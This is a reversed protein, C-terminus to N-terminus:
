QKEIEPLEFTNIIALNSVPIFAMDRQEFFDYLDDEDWTNSIYEETEKFAEIANHIDEPSNVFRDILFEISEEYNFNIRYKELKM